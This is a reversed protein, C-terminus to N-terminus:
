RLLENKNDTQTAICVPRRWGRVQSNLTEKAYDARLDVGRHDHAKTKLAPSRSTSNM